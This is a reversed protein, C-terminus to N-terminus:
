FLPKKKVGWAYGIGWAIFGHKRKKWSEAAAEAVRDTFFEIYEEPRMVGEPVPPYWVGLGMLDPATHTHTANLVLNRVPFDSVLNRLKRRSIELVNDPILASDCSVWIFSNEEDKGSSVALATVTVPDMVTSTIRLHFQGCLNVPKDPTVDRSSWGIMLKSSM